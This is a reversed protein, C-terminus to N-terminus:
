PTTMTFSDVTVSGGLSQTAYNFIAYRYGMFFQWANGMTFTGLQTFNTGDTSYYFRGQRGTGPRIDAAIRLWIRGGSVNASAVETGTGTTNWNSDMTLGNTFVVRNQGNDRKIGIWASSDRLLALGARDGDRMNGYNLVITATSTPGLIRHSLTNRANYLDNTVTATQLTLRNNVSFRTTDPNHNWEWEPGLATGSFTDTGTPSKLPTYPLNPFPYTAGWRGNVLQLSPWGDASWTIPALVPVRGGPYSDVFAMYYWDGNQTQVLGGQHPVGGGSIPGPLDLLLQRIEYPGWPSSSKLIYQGNAPRTLFIYYSGNRKYFRSGELTGISAPTSYVQQARVQSFGDASLQAVSIQTNGYAVYMTDNDDILLGADYYCNNIQSRKQWTGSVSSATYVYTRNFEICGIWYFTSNSNRYGLTSAWIGKVYARGGSLNYANSGFDLTPVSHGVFEWNVLDYSRLIPAGPSYHMTSASYYYVNGVRIIDIDALDEWLVPNNFTTPNSGNFTATVTKNTDMTITCSGTGSCAGSWGAFTSGSAPQATLTVSTGVPFSASCNSTCNIGAPLSTATGNGTGTKNYTLINGPQPVFPSLYSGAIVAQSIGPGQWAVAVNDGGTGEKQLVEIYYKQGATLNISASQQTTFKTWERSNTWGNVYAIRAANAPNDSTSLWLEGSDDSALWFTYAGSAPPHIYGRIRSGYNDAANTPGDLSTMQGNGTPNNPYNANSTLSTVTTGAINNWYERLITGTGGGQPTFSAIVNRAASMSLTCTSASGSCDGSWGGFTSGTNAQATLTVSTTNPYSASCTSGCDIGAPSSTVTGSGSKSVTLTNNGGGGSTVTIGNIKPNETVATFQIIVQGSANATTNFTRAIARNAGGAAAFIDFNSLVTTGDISVNFVRQGAATVYTEAFYLTVVQNGSRNPLTYTMAGYRETNFIATPPPNSPIQSMDITATNTYTSGGSFYADAIFNGTEGGGANISITDGQQPVFPSLYSGAIVSQSIGPGQWAVAVNDGGTGEKQLVEIYYKQGATLTISASQQTTYKTWERSNTWGNVYAIRAANAPNDGTSLWLEGSDDSALWFTYAGSAPPHLYGRIRSGYNDAANTPGELSTLQGSGTPSNPYNANSTLNTVATGTINNWYERLITGSGQAQAQSATPLILAVVCLLTVLM